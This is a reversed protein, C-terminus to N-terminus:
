KLVNERAERVSDRREIRIETSNQTGLHKHKLNSYQIEQLIDHAEIM